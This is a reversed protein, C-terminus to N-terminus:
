LEYAPFRSESPEIMDFFLYAMGAQGEFLSYPRDGTHMTGDEILQNAKDLLFCAFAKAQYLYEVRRTHRYLSLFVYANGSIGHCIGVRKLLGRRWVIAAAEEEAQLFQEDQFVQAAKTLTVAVGPAGHCWHVLRDSESGQSSPYNGSQFRHQIMYNLTTKICKRDEPNLDMDMLVHMIGALGHAAGWYKKGHWEYMLPCSSKNSLRKGDSIIENAIASMDTSPITNEGIHKNLFSCAWLYGVKGYLLENPVDRLKIERFSNLYHRLLVDDGVHKAVVAGLACVGARGCIFTVHRSGASAADCARIIEGCLGLDSKSNTVRYAKFLLLATGLAGTYLTFDRVQRGARLWTRKVVKEKLDLAAELFKDALKPYPLRLLGHLTSQSISAQEHEEEVFDPMENPFYRDAMSPNAAKTLSSCALTSATHPQM